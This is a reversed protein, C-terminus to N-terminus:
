PGSRLVVLLPRSREGQMSGPRLTATKPTFRARVGPVTHCYQGITGMLVGLAGPRRGRDVSVAGRSV